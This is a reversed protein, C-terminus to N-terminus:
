HFPTWRAGPVIDDLSIDVLWVFAVMWRQVLRSEASSRRGLQDRFRFEALRHRSSPLLRGRSTALRLDGLMAKLRAFSALRLSGFCLRIGPSCIRELVSTKQRASSHALSAGFETLLAGRPVPLEFGGREM